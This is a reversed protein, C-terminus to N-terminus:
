QATVGKQIERRMCHVKIQLNPAIKDCYLEANRVVSEQANFGSRLVNYAQHENEVCAAQLQFSPYKSCDRKSRETITVPLNGFTGQLREFNLRELDTCYRLYDPDVRFRAYDEDTLGEQKFMNGTPLSNMCNKEVIPLNDDWRLRYDLGSAHAISLTCALASLSIFKSIVKFSQMLVELKGTM